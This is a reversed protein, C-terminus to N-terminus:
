EQLKAGCNPCVAADKDVEAECESCYWIDEEEAKMEDPEEALSVGCHPCTLADEEVEGCCESCYLKQVESDEEAEEVEEIDEEIEEELNAGCHPCTLADEGVEEGCSSCSVKEAEVAKEIGPLEATALQDISSEDAEIGAEIADTVSGRLEAPKTTEHAMQKPLSEGLAAPVLPPKEKLARLLHTYYEESIHGDDLVRKLNTELSGIEEATMARWQVSRDADQFQRRLSKLMDTEKFEYTVMENPSRSIEHGALVAGPKGETKLLILPLAVNGPLAPLGKVKISEVSKQFNERRQVFGALKSSASQLLGNLREERAQRIKEISRRVTTLFGTHQRRIPNEVTKQFFTEWIEFIYKGLRRIDTHYSQAVEENLKDFKRSIRGVRVNAKGYQQNIREASANVLAMKGSIESLQELIKTQAEAEIGRAIEARIVTLREISAAIGGMIEAQLVRTDSHMQNRTTAVEAAVRDIYGSLRSVEAAVASTDVRVVVNGNSM